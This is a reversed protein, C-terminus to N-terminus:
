THVAFDVFYKSVILKGEENAKAIRICCIATFSVLIKTLNHMKFPVFILVLM